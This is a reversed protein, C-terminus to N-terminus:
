ASLVLGVRGELASRSSQSVQLEPRAHELDAALSFLLGVCLDLDSSCLVEEGQLTVAIPSFPLSFSEWMELIVELSPRVALLGRCNGTNLAIYLLATLAEHVALTRVHLAAQGSSAASKAMGTNIGTTRPSSLVSGDSFSGLSAISPVRQMDLRTMEASRAVATAALAVAAQEHMPGRGDRVLSAYCLAHPGHLTSHASARVQLEHESFVCEEPGCVLATACTVLGTKARATELPADASVGYAAAQQQAVSIARNIGSACQSFALCTERQLFTKRM